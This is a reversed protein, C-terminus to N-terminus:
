DDLVGSLKIARYITKTDCDDLFSTNESGEKPPTYVDCLNAGNRILGLCIENWQKM